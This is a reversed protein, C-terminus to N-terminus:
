GTLRGILAVRDGDVLLLEREMVMDPFASFFLGYVAEIEERGELVGGTPSTVIGDEAHTAALAAADLAAQAAARREVLAVIEDRTMSRDSREARPRPQRTGPRCVPCGACLCKCSPGCRSSAATSRRAHGMSGPSLARRRTSTASSSTM